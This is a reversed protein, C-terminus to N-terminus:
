APRDPVSSIVGHLSYARPNLRPIDVMLMVVGVSLSSRVKATGVGGATSGDAGGGLPPMWGTVRHNTM